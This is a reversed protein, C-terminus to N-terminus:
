STASQCTTDAPAPPRRGHGGPLRAPPAIWQPRSRAAPDAEGDPVTRLTLRHPDRHDTKGHDRDASRHHSNDEFVSGVRPRAGAGGVSVSGNVLAPSSEPTQLPQRGVRRRGRRRWRFVRVGDACESQTPPLVDASWEGQAQVTRSETMVDASCLKLVDPHNSLDEYHNTMGDKPLPTIAFTKWVHTAKCDARSISVIGTTIVVGSWCEALAPPAAYPPPTHRPVPVTM